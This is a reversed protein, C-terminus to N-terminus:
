TSPYIWHPTPIHHKNSDKWCPKKRIPAWDRSRAPNVSALNRWSRPLVCNGIGPQSEIVSKVSMKGVIADDKRKLLDIIKIQGMKIKKKIEAREKRVMAAKELALKRQEDTLKPLAM